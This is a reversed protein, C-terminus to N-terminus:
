SEDRRWVARQVAAPIHRSRAAGGATSARPRATAACRERELREILLTIARDFIEAADGSPVAHRLLAQARRFKDHPEASVTLQIRCREPTLPAISAPSPEPAPCRERRHEVAPPT